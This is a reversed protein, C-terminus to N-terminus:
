YLSSIEYITFYSVPGCLRVCPCVHATEQTAECSFVVSCISIPCVFNPLIFLEEYIWEATNLKIRGTIKLLWFFYHSVFLITLFQKEHPVFIYLFLYCMLSLLCCRPILCLIYLLFQRWYVNKPWLKAKTLVYFICFFPLIYLNKSLIM